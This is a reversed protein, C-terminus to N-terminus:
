PINLKTRYDKGESIVKLIYIGKPLNRIEYKENPAVIDDKISLGQLNYVVVHFQKESSITTLGSTLDQNLKFFMSQNVIEKDSSTLNFPVTITYLFKNEFEGINAGYFSFSLLQKDSIESSFNYESFVWSGSGLNKKDSGNLSIESVLPKYSNRYIFIILLLRETNVLM